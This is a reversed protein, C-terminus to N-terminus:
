RDSRMDCARGLAACRNCPDVSGDLADADCSCPISEIFAAARQVAKILLAVYAEDGDAPNFRDRIEDGLEQYEQAEAHAAPGDALWRAHDNLVTTLAHHLPDGSSCAGRLWRAAYSPNDLTEDPNGIM